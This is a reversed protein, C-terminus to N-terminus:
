MNLLIDYMEKAAQIIRSSAAYAQQFTTLNVLEEDLNVGEVSSRRAVAESKMTDASLRARDAGSAMTGVAGALDAGYDSLKSLGGPHLATKAFQFRADKTAALLNAGDSNGNLLARQGLTTTTSVRALALKTGDAKIDSRIALGDLGSNNTGGLGFFQSLSAGNTLRQSDDDVVSLSNAPASFGNFNLKGTSDFTFNGFRGVGTTPSNLSTILDTMSTGAPIAFNVDGLTAGNASRIRFTVTDGASFGHNSALTLGTAASTPQYDTPRILDGLGFNHAFGKGMKDSPNTSPDVVAV